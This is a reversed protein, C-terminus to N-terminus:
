PTFMPVRKGYPSCMRASTGMRALIPVTHSCRPATHAGWVACFVLRWLRELSAVVHCLCDMLKGSVMIERSVASVRQSPLQHRKFWTPLKCAVAIKVLEM